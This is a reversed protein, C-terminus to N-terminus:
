RIVSAKEIFAETFWLELLAHIVPWTVQRIISLQISYIVMFVLELPQGGRKRAKKRAISSATKKDQEVVSFAGEASIPTGDSLSDVAWGCGASFGSSIGGGAGLPVRSIMVLIECNIAWRFYVSARSM